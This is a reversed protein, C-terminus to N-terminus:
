NQPVGLRLQRIFDHRQVHGLRHKGRFQGLRQGPRRPSGPLPGLDMELNVGAHATQPHQIVLRLQRRRFQRRQAGQGVQLRLPDKGVKGVGIPVLPIGHELEGPKQIHQVLQLPFIAATKFDAM